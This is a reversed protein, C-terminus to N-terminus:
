NVESITLIKIFNSKKKCPKPEQICMCHGLEYWIALYLKQVWFINIM